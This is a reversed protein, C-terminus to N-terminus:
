FTSDEPWIEKFRASKDPGLGGGGEKHGNKHSKRGNKGGKWDKLRTDKQCMWIYDESAQKGQCMLSFLTFSNTGKSPSPLLNYIDLGSVQKDIPVGKDMWKNTRWHAGFIQMNLSLCAFTAPFLGAPVQLPWSNPEIERKPFLYIRSDPIDVLFGKGIKKQKYKPYLHPHCITLLSGNSHPPFLM